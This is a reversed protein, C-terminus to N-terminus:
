PSYIRSEMGNVLYTSDLVSFMQKVRVSKLTPAGVPVCGGEAEVPTMLLKVGARDCM